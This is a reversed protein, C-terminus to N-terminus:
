RACVRCNTYIYSQIQISISKMSFIFKGFFMTYTNTYLSGREVVTVKPANVRNQWLFGPLLTPDQLNNVSPPLYSNKWPSSTKYNSTSISTRHSASTPCRVCGGTSQSNDEASIDEVSSASSSPKNLLSPFLNLFHSMVGTPIDGRSNIPYTNAPYIGTPRSSIPISNGFTSTKKPVVLPTFMTPFTHTFTAPQFNVIHNSFPVSSPIPNLSIFQRSKRNGNNPKINSDCLCISSFSLYLLSYILIM